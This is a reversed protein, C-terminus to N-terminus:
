MKKTKALRKNILYHIKATTENSLTTEPTPLQANERRLKEEKLKNYEIEANALLTRVVPKLEHLSKMEFEEQLTSAISLKHIDGNLIRKYNNTLYLYKNLKGELGPKMRALKEANEFMPRFLIKFAASSLVFGRTVDKHEFEIFDKLRKEADKLHPELFEQQMPNSKFHLIELSKLRNILAQETDSASKNELEFEENIKDVAQKIKKDGINYTDLYGKRTEFIDEYLKKMIYHKAKRKMYKLDEPIYKKLLYDLLEENNKLQKEQKYAEIKEPSNLLDKFYAYVQEARARLEYTLNYYSQTEIEKRVDDSLNQIKRLVTKPHKYGMPGEELYGKNTVYGKGKIGELAHNIEHALDAKLNEIPKNIYWRGDLNIKLEMGDWQAQIGEDLTTLDVPINYNPGNFEYSSLPRKLGLQRMINNIEFNQTTSERQIDNWIQKVVQDFNSIQEFAASTKVFNSYWM